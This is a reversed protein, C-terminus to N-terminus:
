QHLSNPYLIESATHMYNGLRYVQQLLSTTNLAHTSRQFHQHFICDTRIEHLCELYTIQSYLNTM